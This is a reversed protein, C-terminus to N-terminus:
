WISFGYKFDMVEPNEWVIICCLLYIGGLSIIIFFAKIKEKSDDTDAKFKLGEKSLGLYKKEKNDNYRQEALATGYMIFGFLLYIGLIIGLYILIIM